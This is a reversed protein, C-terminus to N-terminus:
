GAGRGEKDMGTLGAVAIQPHNGDGVDDNRHRVRSLGGFQGVNDGIGATEGDRQDGDGAAGVAHQRRGGSTVRSNGEVGSAQGSPSAGVM